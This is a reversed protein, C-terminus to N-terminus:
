HSYRIMFRSTAYNSCGRLAREIELIHEDLFPEYGREIFVIDKEDKIFIWDISSKLKGSLGCKDIQKLDSFAAAAAAQDKYQWREFKLFSFTDLSPPYYVFYESKTLKSINDVKSCQRLVEVRRGAHYGRMDGEFADSKLSKTSLNEKLCQYLGASDEEGKVERLEIDSSNLTLIVVFIVSSLLKM